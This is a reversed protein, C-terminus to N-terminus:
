HFYIKNLSSSIIDSIKEIIDKINIETYYKDNMKIILPILISIIPINFTEKTIEKNSSIASSRIIGADNVEITNNLNNFDKTICSDILIIVDPKINNVVMKILKFSNIGTNAIVDPNFLAVKPITLFDYHNTAIIKDLCDKGISDGAIKNNGLGVILTKYVSNYKKLLNSIIKMIEKVLLKQDELLVEYTFNITYYEGIKIKLNEVIENTANFYSIKIKKNNKIVLEYNDKFNNENTADIFLNEKM